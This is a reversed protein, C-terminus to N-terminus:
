VGPVRGSQVAYFKQQPSPPRTEHPHPTDVAETAIPAIISISTCARRSCAKKFSGSGGYKPMNLCNSCSGCERATCGACTGCRPKRTGSAPRKRAEGTAPPPGLYELEEGGDELFKLFAAVQVM